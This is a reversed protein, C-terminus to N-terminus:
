FWITFNLFTTDNMNMQHTRILAFILEHENLEFDKINKSLQNYIPFSIM